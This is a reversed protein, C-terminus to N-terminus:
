ASCTAHCTTMASAPRSAAQRSDIPIDDLLRLMATITGAPLLDASSEGSMGAARGSRVAEGPEIVIMLDAAGSEAAGAGINNWIWPAEGARITQYAGTRLSYDITIARLRDELASIGGSIMQRTSAASVANHERSMWVTSVGIVMVLATVTAMLIMTLQRSLRINPDDRRIDEVRLKRAFVALRITTRRGPAFEPGFRARIEM